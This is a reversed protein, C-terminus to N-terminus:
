KISSSLQKRFSVTSNSSNSTFLPSTATMRVYAYLTATLVLSAEMKAHWLSCQWADFIVSERCGVVLIWHLHQGITFIFWCQWTCSTTATVHWREDMSSHWSVTPLRWRWTKHYGAALNMRTFQCHTQIALMLTLVPVPMLGVMPTMMM